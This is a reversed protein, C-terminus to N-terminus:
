FDDDGAHGIARRPRWDHDDLTATLAASIVLDDHGRSAPV